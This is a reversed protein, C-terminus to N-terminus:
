NNLMNELWDFDEPQKNPPPTPPRNPFTKNYLLQVVRQQSLLLELVRERDAGALDHVSLHKPPAAPDIKPGDVKPTKEDERRAIEMKVDDLAAKLLIELETRCSMYKQQQDQLQEMQRRQSEYARKLKQIATRYQLEREYMSNRSNQLRTQDISKQSPKGIVVNKKGSTPVVGPLANQQINLSAVHSNLRAVERKAQVLEKMLAHRDDERTRLVGQLKQNDTQLSLNKKDFIQALEQSAHLESVVRRHRAQLEASYDGKAARQTELERFVDQLRARFARMLDKEQEQLVQATTNQLSELGGIVSGHMQRIVGMRQRHEDDTREQLQQELAEITKKAQTERKIFSGVRYKFQDELQRNKDKESDLQRQLDFIIADKDGGGGRHDPSLPGSSQNLVKDALGPTTNLLRAASQRMQLSDAM